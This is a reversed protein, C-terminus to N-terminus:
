TRYNVLGQVRVGYYNHYLINNKVYWASTQQATKINIGCMGSVDNDYILNKEIIIPGKAYNISVGDQTNDYITCNDITLAGIYQSVNYYTRIGTTTNHVVSDSIVGGVAGFLYIGDVGPSSIDCHNITTNFSGSASNAQLAFPYTFCDQFKIYNFTCGYSNNSYFGYSCSQVSFNSLVIWDYGAFEWGRRLDEGDIIAGWEDPSGTPFYLGETDTYFCIENGSSGSAVFGDPNERYTSYATWVTDGASVQTTAYDLTAWAQGVSTGSNSNDGNDIDVYYTAGMLLPALLIVWLWKEADGGDAADGAQGTDRDANNPSELRQKLPYNEWGGAEVTPLNKGM